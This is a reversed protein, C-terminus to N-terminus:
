MLRFTSSNKVWMGFQQGKVGEDLSAETMAELPVVLGSWWGVGGVWGVLWGVLWGLPFWLDVWRRDLKMEALAMM